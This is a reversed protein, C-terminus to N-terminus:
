TGNTRRARRHDRGVLGFNLGSTHPFGPLSPADAFPAHFSQSGTMNYYVLCNSVFKLFAMFFEATTSARIMFTPKSRQGPAPCCNWAHHGGCTFHQVNDAVNSFTFAQLSTSTHDQLKVRSCLSPRGTQHLLQQRELEGAVGADKSSNWLSYKLCRCEPRCYVDSMTVNCSTFVVHQPVVQDHVLAPQVRERQDSLLHLVDGSGSLSCATHRGPLDTCHFAFPLPSSMCASFSLSLTLALM